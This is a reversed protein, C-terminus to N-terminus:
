CTITVGALGDQFFNGGAAGAVLNLDVFNRGLASSSTDSRTEIWGGGVLTSASDFLEFDVIVQRVVASACSTNGGGADLFVTGIANNLHTVSWTYTSGNIVVQGGGDADPPTPAGCPTGCLFNFSLIGSMTYARSGFVGGNFETVIVGRYDVCGSTATVACASGINAITGGRAAYASCEGANKFTRGDSGQLTAYGGDQCQHAADRNGGAAVGAVAVSSAVVIAGVVATLWRARTQTGGLHIRRSLAVCALGPARLRRKPSDRSTESEKLEPVDVDGGALWAFLHEPGERSFSYGELM